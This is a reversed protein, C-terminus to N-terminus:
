SITLRWAGSTSSPFVVIRDRINSRRRRKDRPSITNTSQRRDVIRGPHDLLGLRGVLIHDLVLPVWLVARFLIREALSRIGSESPIRPDALLDATTFPVPEGMELGVIEMGEALSLHTDAESAAEESMAVRRVSKPLPGLRQLIAAPTHFMRCGESVILQSLLGTDRVRLLVAAMNALAETMDLSRRTAENM